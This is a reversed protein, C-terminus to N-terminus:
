RVQTKQFVPIWGPVDGQTNRQYKGTEGWFQINQYHPQQDVIETVLFREERRERLGWAIDIAGCLVNTQLGRLHADPMRM